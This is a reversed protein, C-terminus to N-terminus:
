ALKICVKQVNKQNSTLVKSNKAITKREKKRQIGPPKNPLFIVLTKSLSCFFKSRYKVHSWVEEVSWFHVLSKNKIVTSLRPNKSLGAEDRRASAPGPSSWVWVTVASWMVMEHSQLVHEPLSHSLGRPQLATCDYNVSWCCVNDKQQWESANTKPSTEPHNFSAHRRVSCLKLATKVATPIIETRDNPINKYTCWLGHTWLLFSQNM